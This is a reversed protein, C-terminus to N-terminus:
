KRAAAEAVFQAVRPQDKAFAEFGQKDAQVKSLDVNLQTVRVQAGQTSVLFLTGKALDYPTGDLQFDGGKERPAKWRWDIRKGDVSSFFGEVSSSRFLASEARSGASRVADSWILLSIRGDASISVYQVTTEGVSNTGGGIGQVGFWVVLIVGSVLALCGIIAVATFIRKGM